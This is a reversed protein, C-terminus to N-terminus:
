SRTREILDCILDISEGLRRARHLSDDVWPNLNDPIKCGFRESLECAFDVGDESDLGLDEFPDTEESLDASEKDGLFERLAKMYLDRVEIRETANMHYSFM